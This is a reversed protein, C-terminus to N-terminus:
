LNQICASRIVAAELDVCRVKASRRLNRLNEAQADYKEIWFLTACVCLTCCLVSILISFVFSRQLLQLDSKAVVFLQRTPQASPKSTPQHTPLETPQSTPQDSPRASPRDSPKDSPEGSPHSTPQDSPQNTLQSTLLSSSQHMPLNGSVITKQSTSKPALEASLLNSAMFEGAHLPQREINLTASERAHSMSSPSLDLTETDANLVDPQLICLLQLLGALRM